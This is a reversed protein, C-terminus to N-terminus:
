PATEFGQLGSTATEGDALLADVTWYYDRAAELPVDDPLVVATDPTSVRWLVAGAADTLTLTYQADRGARRWTFSAEDARVADGVPGLIRIAAVAGAESGPGSRLRSDPGQMTPVLLFWVAAAAAAVAALYRVPRRRGAPSEEVLDHGLLRRVSVIEERCIDCDALHAAVRAREDGGLEGDLWAAVLAETLHERADLGIDNM